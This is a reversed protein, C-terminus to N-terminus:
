GEREERQTQRLIRYIAYAFGFILGILSGWPQTKQWRDILFGILWAAIVSGVFDLALAWGKAFGSLGGPKTEQGQAARKLNEPIKPFEPMPPPPKPPQWIAPEDAEERGERPEESM